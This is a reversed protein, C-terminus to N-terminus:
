CTHTQCVSPAVSVAVERFYRDPGGALKGAASEIQEDTIEYSSIATASPRTGNDGDREANKEYVNMIDTMM